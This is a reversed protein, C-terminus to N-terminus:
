KLGPWLPLIPFYSKRTHNKILVMLYVSGPLVVRCFSCRSLKKAQTTNFKSLIWQHWIVSPYYLIGFFWPPSFVCIYNLCFEFEPLTMQPSAGAWACTSSASLYLLVFQVSRCLTSCQAIRLFCPLERWCFCCLRLQWFDVSLAVSRKQPWSCGVFFVSVQVQEKTLVM